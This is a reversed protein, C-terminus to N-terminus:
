TCQQPEAPSNRYLIDLAQGQAPASIRVHLRCGSRHRLDVDVRRPANLSGELCKMTRCASVIPHLCSLSSPLRRSCVQLAESIARHLRGLHRTLAGFGGFSLPSQIGSADGVQLVRDWAPALPSRRYTPFFGFLVRLPQLRELAVGQYEPMLRWYDELLAELLPRGLSRM